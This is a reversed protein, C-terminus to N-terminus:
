MFFVFFFKEVATARARSQRAMNKNASARRGKENRSDSNEGAAKTVMVTEGEMSNRMM